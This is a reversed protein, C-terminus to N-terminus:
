NEFEKLGQTYEVGMGGDEKGYILCADVGNLSQALKLAKEKGLVMFATGYADALLSNEAFVSASLLTTREPFGTRPNITHSYKAGNIEYFNRYNGSTSVSRNKLPFAVEVTELAADEEPKNIGVKWDQGKANVGKARVEGGINVLYNVIGNSELLRCMADVGYGKACGGFDLQVGPLSKRLTNGNLTVKDFGVFRLLSDVASSDVAMVKRKPTYGFGWYNVLPMVTPDFAGGSQIFVAKAVHYNELFHRGPGSVTDDLIFTAEAQNFRSILSSEIYTSVGSNIEELLSDVAAQFNRSLSDAYNLGYYTGMTQGELVMYNTAVTQDPKDRNCGVAALVILLFFYCTRQMHNYLKFAKLSLAKIKETWGDM